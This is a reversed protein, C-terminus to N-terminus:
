KQLVPSERDLNNLLPQLERILKLVEEKKESLKSFLQTFKRDDDLLKERDKKKLSILEIIGSVKTNLNRLLRILNNLWDSFFSIDSKKSELILDKTGSFRNILVGITDQGRFCAENLSHAFTSFIDIMNDRATRNSLLYDLTYRDTNFYNSLTRSITILGEKTLGIDRKFGDYVYSPFAKAM